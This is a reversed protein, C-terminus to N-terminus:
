EASVIGLYFHETILLESVIYGSPLSIYSHPSPEPALVFVRVGHNILKVLEKGEMDKCFLIPETGKQKQRKNCSILNTPDPEVALSVEQSYAPGFFRVLNLNEQGINGHVVLIASGNYTYLAESLDRLEQFPYTKKEYRPPTIAQRVYQVRWLGPQHHIWAYSPKLSVAVLVLTFFGIAVIWIPNKKTVREWLYTWGLTSLIFLPLLLTSFMRAQVPSGSFLYPFTPILILAIWALALLALRIGKAYILGILAGIWLLGGAAGISFLSSVGGTQQKQNNAFSLFLRPDTLPYYIWSYAIYCALAAIGAALACYMHIRGSLSRFSVVLVVVFTIYVWIAEMRVFYIFFATVGSFVAVLLSGHRIALVLFYCAAGILFLSPVESVFSRGLYDSIDSLVYVAASIVGSWLVVTRPLQVHLITVLEMVIAVAFLITIAMLFHFLLHVALIAEETSGFLSVVSGILVIHGLRSYRWYAESYSEESPWNGDVQNAVEVAKTAYSELLPTEAIRKGQYMYIPSDWHVSTLPTANSGIIVSVILLTSLLFWPLKRIFRSSVSKM